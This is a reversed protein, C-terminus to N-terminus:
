QRRPVNSRLNDLIARTEAQLDAMEAKYAAREAKSAEVSGQDGDMEARLKQMAALLQSIAIECEEDTQPEEELFNKEAM